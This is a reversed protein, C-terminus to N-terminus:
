DSISLINRSGILRKAGISSFGREGHGVRSRGFALGTGDLSRRQSRGRRRLQISERALGRSRGRGAIRRADRVLRDLRRDRGRITLDGAFRARHVQLKGDAVGVQVHPDFHAIACQMGGEAGIGGIQTIRQGVFPLRHVGALNFPREAQRIRHEGRGVRRSQSGGAVIRRLLALASVAGSRGIGRDAPKSGIRGPRLGGQLRKGGSRIGRGTGRGQVEM